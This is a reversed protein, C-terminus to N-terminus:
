SARKLLDLWRNWADQRAKKNDDSGAPDEGHRMFGHGAKSYTVPEFTKQADKMLKQVNPLSANIRADNEAFFGYVPCKVRQVAAQDIPEYGYFVFAANLKPNRTAYLLSQGGGWCFGAVSVSGNAAPLKAVYDATADLDATIQDASLSAVRRRADDISGFSETGGGKPGMESLLDPVIAIYGAEALQDGIGRVWEGFGSIDHIVVVAQVRDPVEPYAVMCNVTRDGHKVSVYELHRPSNELRAKAWEQSAATPLNNFSCLAAIVLAIPNVWGLKTRVCGRGAVALTKGSCM